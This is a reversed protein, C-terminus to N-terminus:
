AGDDINLYRLKFGATKRDRLCNLSSALRQPEKYEVRLYISGLSPCSIDQVGGQVPSPANWLSKSMPEVVVESCGISRVEPHTRFFDRWDREDLRPLNVQLSTISSPVLPISAMVVNRLQVIRNPPLRPNNRVRMRALSLRELQLSADLIGLLEDELMAVDATCFWFQLHLERLGTFCNSSWPLTSNHLDLVRLAMDTPLQLTAPNQLSIVSEIAMSDLYLMYRSANSVLSHGKSSGPSIPSPLSSGLSSWHIPDVAKFSV